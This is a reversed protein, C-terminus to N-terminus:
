RASVPPVQSSKKVELRGPPAPLLSMKRADIMAIQPLRRCGRALARSGGSRAEESSINLGRAGGALRGRSEQGVRAIPTIAFTTPDGRCHAGVGDLLGLATGLAPLLAAAGLRALPEAREQGAGARRPLGSTTAEPKGGSARTDGEVPVSSSATM